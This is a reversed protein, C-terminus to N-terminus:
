PWKEFNASVEQISADLGQWFQRFEKSAATNNGLKAASDGKLISDGKM